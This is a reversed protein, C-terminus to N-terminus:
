FFLDILNLSSAIGKITLCISCLIPQSTYCGLEIILGDIDEDKYANIIYANIISDGDKHNSM